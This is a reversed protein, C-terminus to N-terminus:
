RAAFALLQYTRGDHEFPQVIDMGLGDVHARLSHPNDQSVLTIGFEFEGAAAALLARYLTRLLGRGRHARDICVPGYVLLPADGLARGRYAAARSCRLMAEVLPPLFALDARHACLYGVVSEGDRAVMIGVDDAMAVIQSLSLQASLFGAEREQATLRPLFNAAQLELIGAYDPPSARRIEM